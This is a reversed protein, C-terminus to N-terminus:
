AATQMSRELHNTLASLLAPKSAEALDEPIQQGNTVFSVPVQSSVAAEILAAPNHMEDAHTFILKSPRFPAFREYAIRLAQTQSTATLVLQVDVDDHQNIFASLEYAEDRDAPSFGPTDVLIMEKAANQELSHALARVGHASEFPVGLINAYAQLQEAGGLRLTDTSILHIPVKRRTGHSIALKVLTSTKGAGPPGVLVVVKREATRKGLEPAVAFRREIEAMVAMCSRRRESASGKRPKRKTPPPVTDSPTAEILERAFGDTFGMRLLHAITAQTTEVFADGGSPKPAVISRQVKEIQQRLQALQGTIDEQASSDLPVSSSDTSHVDAAVGFTVEYAQDLNPATSKRSDLLLAEPGLEFRAKEIAEHVSRTLYSRIKM